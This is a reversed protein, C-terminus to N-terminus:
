EPPSGGSRRRPTRIILPSTTSTTSHISATAHGSTDTDDDAAAADALAALAAALAPAARLERWRRDRLASRLPSDRAAATVLELQADADGDEALSTLVRLRDAGDALALLARAPQACSPREPVRGPVDV